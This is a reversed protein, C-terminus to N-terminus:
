GVDTWKNNTVQEHAWTVNSAQQEALYEDLTKSGILYGTLLNQGTQAAPTLLAGNSLKAPASWDKSTLAEITTPAKASTIAPISGTEALWNEVKPSSMYQLFKIAADLKAGKIYAPIMYSTGGAGTGFSAPAGSAYKSDKTSITPFPVTSWDFKVTSLGAASFNTGWAMAAKGGPFATSGTFAGAAPIGSWNPTACADYWKKIIKVSDAVAPDTSVDLSGDLIGKALSKTALPNATGANGDGGFVNIKDALPDLMTSQIATTAWMSALTGKDTALPDIGAEKLTTCAKTFGEFTSLQSPSIGEKKLIDNNYFIGVTVLNFPVWTHHGTGDRQADGFYNKDFGDLWTKSNPDFPNKEALYKDLNMVQDPKPAPQNFILEPATGATLQTSLTTGFSSLPLVNTKININPNDNEFQAILKDWAPGFTNTQDTFQNPGALTITVKDDSSSGPTCGTLVLAAAAITGVAAVLAKPRVLRKPQSM